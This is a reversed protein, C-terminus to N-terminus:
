RSLETWRHGAKRYGELDSLLKEQEEDELSTVHSLLTGCSVVHDLARRLHFLVRDREEDTVETRGASARLAEIAERGSRHEDYLNDVYDKGRSRSVQPYFREEEFEIHPGAIRDLEEAKQVAQQWEGSEVLRVLASLGKTLKQHDDLFADRLRSKANM